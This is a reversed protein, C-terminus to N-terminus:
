IKEAPRTNADNIAQTFQVLHFWPHVGIFVSRGLRLWFFRVASVSLACLFFILFLTIVIARGHSLTFFNYSM